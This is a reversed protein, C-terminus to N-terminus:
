REIGGLEAADRDVGRQLPGGDLGLLDLVDHHALHQLRTLPLDGRALGLDLRPNGLLDGGLRDVLDARRPQPRRHDEVLRDAGAVELDTDAAAHLRHRLGGIQQRLRAEAIAHAVGLHEVRHDVVAEGVREGALLHEDLGGLDAVLQLHGARVEVAPRQAGVLERQLRGVLPAHGLLDDRHRDLAALAVRTTSISSPGRRSVESSASAASGPSTPM